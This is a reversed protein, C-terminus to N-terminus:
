VQHCASAMTIHLSVFSPQTVHAVIQSDVSTVLLMM